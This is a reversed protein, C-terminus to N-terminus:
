LIYQLKNYIKKIKSKHTTLYHIIMGQELAMKVNPDNPDENPKHIKRRRNMVM